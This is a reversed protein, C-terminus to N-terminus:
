RKFRLLRTHQVDHIPGAETPPFAPAFLYSVSILQTFVHNLTLDTLRSVEWPYVTKKQCKGSDCGLLQHLAHAVAYVAKVVSIASTIHYNDLRFNMEALSYVDRSQLCTNKPDASVNSANEGNGKQLLAEVLRERFGPITTYKIAVGIVTGITHIGPISSIVSSQSWDETGIWVKGTVNREIVFPMLKSLKSKSSFVVITTVKTVLINDVINRMVAVTDHTYEPIVGQYAICINYDSAQQSISQMGKLGYSNDSGLLAIWTWNFRVLLQIVAAVQNKDSPITRFFTPFLLKNSLM